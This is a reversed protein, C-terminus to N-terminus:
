EKGLAKGMADTFRGPQFEIIRYTAAKQILFPDETIARQVEDMSPFDALIIGGERPLKRGSFHFHGSAYYKDLYANHGELLADIETLPKIYTLELLFM